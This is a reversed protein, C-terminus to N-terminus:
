PKEARFTHVIGRQWGTMTSTRVDAFGTRRLRAAFETAGDFDLV